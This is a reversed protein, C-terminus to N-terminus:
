SLGHVVVGSGSSWFRHNAALSAQAVCHLVWTGCRLGLAASFLFYGVLMQKAGEM